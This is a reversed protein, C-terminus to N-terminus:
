EDPRCTWAFDAYGYDKDDESSWIAAMLDGWGRMSGLFYTGDSFVPVYEGEQADLGGVRIRNEIVSKRIAEFRPREQAVTAKLYDPWRAGNNVLGHEGKKRQSIPVYGFWGGLGGISNEHDLGDRDEIEDEAIWEVVKVPSPM